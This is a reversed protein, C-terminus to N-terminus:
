KAIVRTRNNSFIVYVDQGEGIPKKGNQVVTILGNTMAASIVSKMSDNGRYYADKLKETDVKIIYEFGKSQSLKDQIVAGLVAGGIGGAVTALGGGNSASNGAVAGGLGGAIAGAQNDQLRESEKIKVARASIVTGELTLSLTSDSTYVDDSLDRACGSFLLAVSVLSILIKKM